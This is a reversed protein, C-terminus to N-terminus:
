CVPHPNSLSSFQCYHRVTEVAKVEFSFVVFYRALLRIVFQLSIETSEFYVRCRPFGQSQKPGSPGASLKSVHIYIM